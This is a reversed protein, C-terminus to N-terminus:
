VCSVFIKRITNFMKSQVINCTTVFINNFIVVVFCGNVLRKMSGHGHGCWRTCKGKASSNRSGTGLQAHITYNCNIKMRAM